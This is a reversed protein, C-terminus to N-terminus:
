QNGNSKEELYLERKGFSIFQVLPRKAPCVYACLGCEICTGIDYRDAAERYQCFECFRGLFNPMLGVPCVDVCDGCNICARYDGKYIQAEPLVWLCRTDKLVPRDLSFQGMGDFPNGLVLSGPTGKFGGCADILDKLPTGIRVKLNKPTQIGEGAVMVYRELLPMGHTIAELGHIATDVHTFALGMHIAKGGPTPIEKNFIEKFLLHPHGLPYYVALRIIEFYDEFGVDSLAQEVDDHDANIALSVKEPEFMRQILRAGELVRDAREVMLRRSVSGLFGREIGNIIFHKIPTLRAGAREADPLTEFPIIKVGADRLTRILEAPERDSFGEFPILDSKWAEQEDSEIFLCRTNGGESFRYDKIETIKGSVPSHIPPMRNDPDEGLKEGKFVIEGPEVLPRCFVGPRDSLPLIVHKPPPLAEIPMDPPPLEMEFKLGGYLKIMKM